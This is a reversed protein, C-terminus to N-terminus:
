RVRRSRYAALPALPQARPRAALSVAGDQERGGSPRLGLTRAHGSPIARAGGPEHPGLARGHPQADELGRVWPARPGRLPDPVAGANRDGALLQAHALRLPAADALEVAG